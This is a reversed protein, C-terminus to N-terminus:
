ASGTNKVEPGVKRVFGCPEGLWGRGLLVVDVRRGGVM